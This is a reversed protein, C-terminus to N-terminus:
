FAHFNAFGFKQGFRLSFLGPPYIHTYNTANLPYCFSALFAVGCVGVGGGGWVCVCGGVGVGVWGGMWVGVGYEWGCGFTM